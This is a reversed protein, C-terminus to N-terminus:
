CIEIKSIDYLKYGTVQDNISLIDFDWGVRNPIGKIENQIDMQNYISIRMDESLSKKVIIEFENALNLLGDMYSELAIAYERMLRADIKDKIHIQNIHTAALRLSNAMSSMLETTEKIKASLEGAEKIIEQATM